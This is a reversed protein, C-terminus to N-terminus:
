SSFMQNCIEPLTLTQELLEKAAAIRNLDNSESILAYAQPVTIFFEGKQETYDGIEPWYSGMKEKLADFFNFAYNQPYDLIQCFDSLSILPKGKKDIIYNVTHTTPITAILKPM